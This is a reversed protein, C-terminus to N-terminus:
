LDDDRSAVSQENEAKLAHPTGLNGALSRVRVKYNRMKGSQIITENCENDHYIYYGSQKADHEM